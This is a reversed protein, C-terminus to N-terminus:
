CDVADRCTHSRTHKTAGFRQSLVSETNSPLFASAYRERYYLIREESSVNLKADIIKIIEHSTVTDCGFCVRVCRCWWPIPYSARRRTLNFLYSKKMMRKTQQQQLTEHTNLLIFTACRVCVCLSVSVYLRYSHQQEMKRENPLLKKAASENIIIEKAALTTM